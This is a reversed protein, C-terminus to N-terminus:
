SGCRQDRLLLAVAVHRGRVATVVGWRPSLGGSSAARSQKGRPRLAAPDNMILRTLRLPSGLPLGSRTGRVEKHSPCGMASEDIGQM